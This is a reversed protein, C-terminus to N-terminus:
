CVLWKAFDYGDKLINGMNDSGLDHDFSIFNPIGNNKVFTLINKRDVEWLSTSANLLVSMKKESFDFIKLLMEVAKSYAGLIEKTPITDSLEENAYRWRPKFTGMAHDNVFGPVISVALEWGVEPERKCILEFVQMRNNYQALTQWHWAKFIELLSNLPKNDRKRETKKTALKALILSARSLFEPMYALAELAHLLGTHYSQPMLLGREEEFMSLITAENNQLKRELADLFESPSAEAVLPLSRNLTKWLVENDSTLLEKVVSDVFLIGSGISPDFNLENNFVSIIALSQLIGEKIDKSFISRKDYLNAMFRKDPELEFMPNLESLVDLAVIRSTEFDKKILQPSLWIWADLVSSLRWFNGIKIFPSDEKNLWRNLKVAYVDYDLGTFKKILEKDAPNNEDWRGVFLAPIVDRANEAKAWLPINRDLKLHRRLITLSRASELSLKDAQAKTYGSVVLAEIFKDRNPKPLKISQPWAVANEPTVPVVVSHGNKVAQDFSTSDEFKPILVLPINKVSLKQFTEPNSVILGRAFFDESVNVDNIFAAIIYAISEDRSLGKVALLEPKTLVNTIKLAKDERGALVLAPTLKEATWKAWFDDAPQLGGDPWLNMHNITLTAAIAPHDELWQELYVADIVVVDKWINDKVKEKVWKDSAKWILPTVFIFVCDKQSFGLSNKSRKAYNREAQKKANSDSSFEWLSYGDPFHVTSKDAKLIGDWGGMTINNGSPFDIKSINVAVARILSRILWPMTEQSRREGAFTKLQKSNVWRM